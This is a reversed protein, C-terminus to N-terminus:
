RLWLIKGSKCPKYTASVSDYYYTCTSFHGFECVYDFGEIGAPYFNNGNKFFQPLSSCPAKSSTAMAGGMAVVVAMSLMIIRIKRM